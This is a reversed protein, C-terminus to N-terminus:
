WAAGLALAFLIMLLVAAAEYWNSHRYYFRDSM